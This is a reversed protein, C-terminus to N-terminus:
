FGQRFDLMAVDQVYGFETRPLRSGDVKPTPASDMNSIRQFHKYTLALTARQWLSVQIETNLEWEFDQRTIDYYEREHKGDDGVPGIFVPRFSNDKDSRSNM